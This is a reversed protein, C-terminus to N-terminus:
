ELTGSMGVLVEVHSDLFPVWMRSGTILVADVEKLEPFGRRRKWEWEGGMDEEEGDPREEPNM